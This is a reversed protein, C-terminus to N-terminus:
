RAAKILFVVRLPGHIFSMIKNFANVLTLTRLSSVGVM